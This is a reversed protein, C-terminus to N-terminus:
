AQPHAAAAAVRKMVVENYKHLERVETVLGGHDQVFVMLHISGQQFFVLPALPILRTASKAENGGFLAGDRLWVHYVSAAHESLRYEGILAPWGRADVDVPELDRPVVTVQMAVALWESGSRRYVDTQVYTTKLQQGFINESEDLWYHVVAAQAGIAHVTLDRVRIRGTFGQPLPRLDHLFRTKDLVEGDETTITCSADLTRDWIAQGGSAVADYLAQTRSQFWATTEDPAPHALCPACLWLAALAGNRIIAVSEGITM